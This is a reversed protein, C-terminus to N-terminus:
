MPQARRGGRRAPGRRRGVLAGLDGAPAGDAPATTEAEVADLDGLLRVLEQGFADADTAALRGLEEGHALHRVQHRVTWGPRPRRGRGATPTSRLGAAVRLEAQGSRLDALLDALPPAMAALM